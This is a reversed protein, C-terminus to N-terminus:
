QFLRAKVLGLVRRPALLSPTFKPLDVADLTNKAVLGLETDGEVVLRRSFFLTDPDEKRSALLYLDRASASIALDPAAAPRAASFGAAGVTFHFSLGLDTVRIELRKGHLPELSERPIIRGLALNLAQAFALSPPFAPLRSVLRGLPRPFVFGSGEM